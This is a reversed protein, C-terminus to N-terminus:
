ESGTSRSFLFFRMRSFEPDFLLYGKWPIVEEREIRYATKGPLLEKYFFDCNDRYTPQTAYKCMNDIYSSFIYLRKPKALAVAERLSEFDKMKDPTLGVKALNRTLLNPYMFLFFDAHRGGARSRATQATRSMGSIFGPLELTQWATQSLSAAVLIWALRSNFIPHDAPRRSGLWALFSVGAVLFFVIHPTFGHPL